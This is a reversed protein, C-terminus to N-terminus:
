DGRMVKRNWEKQGFSSIEIIDHLEGERRGRGRVRRGREEGERRRGREEGEGEGEGEGGGRKEREEGGGIKEREGGGRKEGERREM